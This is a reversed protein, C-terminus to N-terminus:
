EAGDGLWFPHAEAGGELDVDCRAVCRELRTLELSSLTHASGGAGPQVIAAAGCALGRLEARREHARAAEDSSSYATEDSDCESADTSPHPTGDASLTRTPIPQSSM